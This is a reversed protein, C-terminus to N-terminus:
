RAGARRRVPLRHREERLGAMLDGDTDVRALVNDATFLLDQPHRCRQVESWRLPTSVTPRPRARLSYPAVTTKAPNNQSWDILVKGTRRAKTMTAVVREPTEGALREAVARAYESTRGPASVRVPVYVQLGKSGSTKVWAPLGDEALVERIREAVRCCDVVTAPEGPDLDFVLLDPVGQGGRPRVTWQPVHLELAALNALWVLSARGDVVVFDAYAANRRSGPTPLRATRVWNPAHRPVNKEYFSEGEVGDPFRRLTVPRGALHPLLVPSVRVYYDIVEGKTFGTEPYLVKDLNSLKLRHGDVDVLVDDAM